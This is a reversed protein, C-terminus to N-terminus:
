AADHEGSLMLAGVGARTREDEPVPILRGRVMVMMRHSLALVEDLDTSILVVGPSEGTDGAVLSRLQDHVFATAAVDLGHTPNEAVLLKDAEAVERAVVLRQQNGGSLAGARTSPGPARVGYRHIADQTAARIEHWALTLGAAYPARRHLALAMNETLDFGAILGERTRDQSVFGVGEPLEATGSELDVLGALALALERQGNGEVGAVGLIEGRRVTIDVDDLARQGRRGTVRADTLTAVPSGVDAPPLTPSPSPAEGVMARTLTAVDVDGAEASLVSRGERMVTVRHSVALIEDLKHAVLAIATGESSLARLLAFLQDVERPTLVATPEDLILIGPRRLLAKLIEVRQRDGVGLDEVLAAYPVPLGTRETLEDARVRVAETSLGWGRAKGRFGLSLNELVTLRPVLTFHQHVMGVGHAWAERPSDFAVSEGTIEVSGSDARLSGGLISLLTTKGAGNEGLVCHVEGPRLTLDAGDL